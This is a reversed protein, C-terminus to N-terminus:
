GDGVVITAVMGAEYHGPEHCGILVTGPEDFTVVLEGTEGPELSVSPVDGAGGMGGMDGMEDAHEQQVDEDGVVAEHTTAGRNTFRFTITSGTTVRTPGLDYAIDTMSVDVSTGDLLTTVDEGGACAPLLLLAAAVGISVRSHFTM